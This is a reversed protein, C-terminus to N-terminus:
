RESLISTLIHWYIRLKGWGVLRRTPDLRMWNWESPELWMWFGDNEIQFVMRFLSSQIVPDWSLIDWCKPRQSIQWTRSFIVRSQLALFWNSFILNRWIWWKLPNTEPLHKLNFGLINQHFFVYNGFYYINGEVLGILRNHIPIGYSGIM